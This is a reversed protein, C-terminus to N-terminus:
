RVQVDVIGIGELSFRYSADSDPFVTKMVSGTMVVQGAKLWAGRSNLQTALWAVSNFPHGLIDRGQGEGIDVGDKTARGMVPGLDPLKAAFDSLVIGGNWSNDSVLSLVDLNGYDANRDDVIEIAACVGGVHPAIMEATVPAATVPVDSKIRVAIEFELGLRGFDARRITAGSRHVRSALVVGAIPHDIGCFKQMTASTLGVKYGVADGHEGRLLAVYSDQIDYADSITAPKDPPALSTFQVSAKHAALLSQAARRASADEM